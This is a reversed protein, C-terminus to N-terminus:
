NPRSTVVQRIAEELHDPDVPKILHLAFGAQESRRVDGEMGFGSLAIGPLNPWQRRLTALLDHGNGDPLGIDSIILDYPEAASAAMNTASTCCDAHIVVHGASSLVVQLLEASDHHDEVLLIRLGQSNEEPSSGDTKPAENVPRTLPPMAHALNLDLTFTAGRNPGDSRATLSGGHGDVLSKSIALGLGLGGFQRTVAQEGQEFANFIRPLVDPAIGVGTDAVTLRVHREDPRALRVEVTGGAPTFKVANKILNWLVQQLRAPDAFLEAPGIADAMDVRLQLRKEAIEDAVMELVHRLPERLEILRQRLELKGRQIRNLDLLDDILKVELEVNRRLMSLLKRADDPLDKHRELMTIAGRVPTLPTRLEHSLVALFQDKANSAAEAQQRLRNQIEYLRSRELAEACLRSLDVMFQRDEPAAEVADRFCLGLAGVVRGAVILPLAAIGRTEPHRRVFPSDSLRPMFEPQGSRAVRALPVDLDLSFSRWPDILDDSFGHWGLLELKTRDDSVVFVHGAFAGTAALGQSVVVEAVQKPTLSGSLAATVEQLRATRETQAPM